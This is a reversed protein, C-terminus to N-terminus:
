RRSDLMEVKGDVSSEFTVEQSTFLYKFGLPKAHAVWRLVPMTPFGFDASRDEIFKKLESVDLRHDCEHHSFRTSNKEASDDTLIAQVLANAAKDASMLDFHGNWGHVVPTLRLEYILRSYEELVETEPRTTKGPIFRHVFSPIKLETAAKELLQESAWRSANYGDSGDNPPPFATVSTTEHINCGSPIVGASSTYHIPIRRPTAMQILEKTSAVNTPRLIHYSDWFTHIAGMHLIVDVDRSLESFVSESLGLRTKSLDGSHAVIKDSSVALRSSPKGRVAVCHIKSVMDDEVLKKLIYKALYGTSGTLLIVKRFDKQSSKSILSHEELPKPLQIESSWDIIGVHLGEELKRAMNGLTNASLLEVLPIVINFNERIRSQLRVVLLSNGGVQFFSTEPTIRFGFDKNGLVNEWLLKLQFMAATLELTDDKLAKLRPLPLAKIARRDVKSHNNLPLRELPVMMVPIMYQPLPLQSLLQRLYEEPEAVQHQPAFVTHAVLFETDTNHLTVVAERLIGNSARVINSEIDGLEIRIGRIKIQTDDAMRSQFILAGDERLRGIDGTRYMTTWGQEVYEPPAYPNHIFHQKSLEENAIYGLSVGAGGLVIEGPMGPPLPKQQDDLIYTAYNPLSHGCAIREDDLDERYPIEMKTSSITIEAPGYSNFFRLRPLCLDTFKQVLTKYLIEGGGFAFRWSDAGQLNQSGYELWQLYESPTAKTYTIQEDRILKTIEIPDGRKSWPVIYVSGGNVLGTFIQDSSHNFTFASQQLVREAGLKWAKTYGEMENRLGSHKIVVGKPMGTSGSTYLIAALDNARAQNPVRVSPTQAVQSTNVIKARPLKLEVSDALTENDVLLAQPDCSGVIAALRPLPSRLDLPVYLAGLRMIALLSCVWDSTAQEFVAVKSGHRLGRAKMAEAIAEVREIMKGYSLVKGYGDKLAVKDLNALAIQDVRSPLTEPWDSKMHPGLGVEIGRKSDGESFLVTDNPSVTPDRAFQSLFNVYTRILLETEEMGYLSEQTRLMILTNGSSETVDLTIDYATRGPHVDEVEINFNGFKQNEQAGQRYDFFAQFMPSHEASRPVGLEKLLIDFPIRSHALAAYAINRAEVIADSFRQTPDYKFRLTLLNLFLGITNMTNGDTRNADAIGITLDETDKLLLFLMTKFCALHFHFTTSQQSSSAKKIQATLEPGLRYKAQNVNFTKMAVRCTSKSMPLLGLPKPHDHFVDKWYTLDDDLQGTKYAELQANSFESLQHPPGGLSQGKYAKELDSLFIQYSVGDMVIHHYCFLLYHSTPSLSLLVVRTLNGNRLDFVHSRLAQYEMLVEEFVKVKKHELSLHSSALIGQYATDDEKNDAIFGTRLAEHRQGVLKVARELDATRVNGSVRYYFTVNFTTQDEMLLHLFWFRSQAFSIPETRIFNPSLTVKTEKHPAVELIPSESTPTTLQQDPTPFLSDSRINESSPGHSPQRSSEPPTNQKEIPNTAIPSQVSGDKRVNPILREPLTDLAQHCLSIVSGGSMIKLVPMDTKLEKLFWSRIEVAVLSDVGLEVLPTQFDVEDPSLQLVLQLMASFFETIIEFVQDMSTATALQDTVLAVDNKRFTKTEEGKAEVTIIESNSEFEPRGSLITEAFMQHFDSESIPMYGYKVLQDQVVQGAREVYGMGVVRGIDFASAAKGRKRRKAALSTLYTSAAAYNSQGTNGVVSSLSSFLIFFDLDTDYFIEDLYNTGDIKPKLVEEMMDLSMQNFLTDHLIMAGNAVGAIPPMSTEIEDCVRQIDEKVTVDMKYFRVITGLQEMSKAWEDDFSPNRSTLCVYGAGNRAMYECLSQGIQGSLGSLLYTKNKSFLLKDHLRQVRINVKNGATWDLISLPSRYITSNTIDGVNISDYALRNQYIRADHVADEMIQDSLADATQEIVSEKQVLSPTLLKCGLPLSEIIHSGVGSKGECASFDVFHTLDQPLQTQLLRRSFRAHLRIWQSQEPGPESSGFHIKINKAAVKRSLSAALSLSPEHVYLVGNTSVYRLLSNALFEDILTTLLNPCETSPCDISVSAIPSKVVSSNTESLIAVRDGTQRQTGISVFLFNEENVKVASLGSHTIEVGPDQTNLPIQHPSDKLYVEDGTLAVEVMSQRPDVYDTVQRRHSNLRANQNSHRLVRPVMLQKDQLALEPEQTWLIKKEHDEALEWASSAHLRLLSEAIIRPAHSNEINDLDLFQLRLHPMEYSIARGFGVSSMHYPESVRCDETVWLLSKSLDLLRNLCSMKETDFNEFIPEDLDVLNIFTTMLSIDDFDSPLGDLITVKFCFKGLLDAVDEAIRSTRLTKTGVIVLEEIRQTVLPSSLPRKLYTIREDVAQAAMVSFPWALRDRDPTMTDIGSFGSKRLVTNWTSPSVTPAYRRGDDVGVWWGVLGGTMSGIRIPGSDTIELLLLYGGPKLLSRVNSLTHELSKTAHLVNSAIILDYSHEKYGQSAPLKEIDLTKFILNFKEFAAAAKDMFGSSIDTFTYSSFTAGIAGLVSRTAGGTGAGIELINLHPYRHVIQKVMRSLYTNYKKFGLGIRYFDDLLGDKVMHELITTEGRVVAPMNDGVASILKIDVSDPYKSAMERISAITDGYWEKKVFPHKDGSITSLLHNISDRLRQHHWEAHEWEDESIDAKWKRLYYYSLRECINALDIEEESAHDNGMVLKGNPADVDWQTYSFLLRDDSPNAPSFPVLTLDEVQILVDEGSETYIDVDGIIAVSKGNRLTANIPLNTQSYPLAECLCPNVRVCRISTPVHLSWLREDGPSSQALLAAQFAVDLMTPHVTMTDSEGDEYVYTSVLAASRDLKRKLQSMGRFPGTYGYGLDSLSSYFRESDISVMRSFEPKVTRLTKPSSLGYHVVVRAKAMLTMESIHSYCTFNAEEMEFESNQISTIDTLTVLTEVAFNADDEFTIARKVVLDHVEFLSVPRENALIRAAEFAMVVYGAAPFVTQGQLQHGTLWPIESPKLQNAWRMDRDTSDSSKVGLLQHFSAERTRFGHSRRSEHWYLRSHDWQYAPLNTLLMRPINGSALREFSEFDVASGGFLGWISGLCDSLSEIDNNGRSLTGVYPLSGERADLITQSAPGKLAPHPGVELVLNVDCKAAEMVAAKFHVSRVMNDRWYLDKLSDDPEMVKGQIVSSYWRCTASRNDHVNIDTARLSQTYPESCPLMHHSHYASDVKLLRAFKSEEEFVTKAEEIADADGSLTVSAPSNSAAITIRGEFAPLDCLEQADEWSTGVALMAGKKGDPGCALGAHFGRYYAIRIADSESIFGAAYAAAIEGSSHGVVARFNLGASQLLDVLIVQIATCLPQSYAAEGIRSISADALLEEKLSWTPRDNEPLEALSAELIEIRNSVFKSSRILHAGMSAWQAGQGTFVGLIQPMRGTRSSKIGISDTSGNQVEELKKEVKAILQETTVASFTARIPFVTRRLQLTWALDRLVVNTESKLHDVYARLASILSKETAASFTFPTFSPIALDVPKRTEEIQEYSELIAHGNTGGFGFSNVSVRRPSGPVLTPWPTPKLPVRLCDYYQEIEPNLKNLLLNQPIMGQQLALSGKLIGALGATGETHGIVTKISGVSLTDLDQLGYPFFASKIAAAERPDGVKTGTGHAEFFQPRDKPDTITLGARKYTQQILQAQAESSPVTLGGTRGDQNLGTERVVCEIHDGDALADKLTKMVVVAVGDGRAYGDADADWMRSRSTPSLLNMKSEGIYNEPGLILEAGAAIAVKSEGIRLAQVAQHVAVMSSSCATDITMSPGHWDFFYSIRNSIISRSVGTAYYTPLTAVDRTLLDLYDVAMVGVYVATDSGRLRDITLGGSELAEYVTEMLFRQQPDISEAEKPKINFFQADFHRLDEELMYSHRVNTTGHHSGDPHYFAEPNFRSQPIERLIDRPERLLEWLLAPSSAGGPFRCSSGVIAIPESMERHTVVSEEHVRAELRAAGAGLNRASVDLPELQEDIRALYSAMTTRLHELLSSILRVVLVLRLEMKFPESLAKNERGTSADHRLAEVLRQYIHLLRIYCALCLHPTVTDFGPNSTFAPGENVPTMGPPSFSSPPSMITVPSKSQIGQGSAGLYHRLVNLLDASTQFTENVAKCGKEPVSSSPDSALFKSAADFTANLILTDSFKKQAVGYLCSTKYVPYLRTNLDSLQRNLMDTQDAEKPWLRPIRSSSSSSGSRSRPITEHHDNNLPIDGAVLNDVDVSFSPLDWFDATNNVLLSDWGITHANADTTDEWNLMTSSLSGWDRAAITPPQITPLATSVDVPLDTAISIPSAAAM